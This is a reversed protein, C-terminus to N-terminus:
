AHIRGRDSRYIEPSACVLEGYNGSADYFAVIESYTLGSLFQREPVSVNFNGGPSRFILLHCDRGLVFQEIGNMNEAHFDFRYREWFYRAIAVIAEHTEADDLGEFLELETGEAQFAIAEPSPLSEKNIILEIM